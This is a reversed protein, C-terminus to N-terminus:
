DNTRNTINPNCSTGYDWDWYKGPYKEIFELNLNKSEVLYIFGNGIIPQKLISKLSNGYYTKPNSSIYFNGRILLFLLISKM